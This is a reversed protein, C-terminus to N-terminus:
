VIFFIFDFSVGEYEPDDTLQAFCELDWYRDDAEAKNVLEKILEPSIAEYSSSSTM